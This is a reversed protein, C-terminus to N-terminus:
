VLGKKVDTYGVLQINRERIIEQVRKDTWARAVGERDVAVNDYGAHGLARAEACQFAPHEIFLWRGWGLRQLNERLLEVKQEPALSQSRSGFGAFREFGEMDVGLGYEEELKSCVAGIREDVWMLGMHGSLHSAHPVHVLVREIQARLEAEVETIDWDLDLLGKVGEKRSRLTTCFYGADTVLSSAATLPGWKINEWESTLTLHVGVDYEPCADLLRVAEMFWACPAMLEVSRAIGERFTHMCAENANHAMGIDDARVLLYIASM